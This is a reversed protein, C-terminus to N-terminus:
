VFFINYLWFAHFFLMFETIWNHKYCINCTQVRIFNDATYLHMTAAKWVVLSAEFFDSLPVVPQFVSNFIIRTEQLRYIAIMCYTVEAALPTKM